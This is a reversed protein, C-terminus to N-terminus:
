AYNCTICFKYLVSDKKNEPILFGEVDMNKAITLVRVANTGTYPYQKLINRKAEKEQKTLCTSIDALYQRNDLFSWFTLMKKFNMTKVIEYVKIHASHQPSRCANHTYVIQHNLGALKKLVVDKKIKPCGLLVPKANYVQECVRRFVRGAKSKEDQTVCVITWDYTQKLRLLTGGMWLTEDDPHAVIVLAKTKPV